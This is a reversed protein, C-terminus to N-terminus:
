SYKRVGDEKEATKPTIGEFKLCLRSFHISKPLSDSESM